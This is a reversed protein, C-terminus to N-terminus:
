ARFDIKRHPLAPQTSGPLMRGLLWPCGHGHKKFGGDTATEGQQHVMEYTYNSSKQLLRLVSGQAPRVSGPLVGGQLV